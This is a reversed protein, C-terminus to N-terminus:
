SSIIIGKPIVSLGSLDIAIPHGTLQGVPKVFAKNMSVNLLEGELKKGNSDHLTVMQGYLNEFEPKDEYNDNDLGSIPGHNFGIYRKNTM